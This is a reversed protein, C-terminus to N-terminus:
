RPRVIRDLEALRLRLEMIYPQEDLTWHGYTILVFTGDPLIEIGPYACDSDYTNDMLRVLYQGESGSVLDEYRGIWAVWDGDSPSRKDMHRFSVLLRGDPAFKATHRDGTLTLPMERPPSWTRGEDNSFIICSRHTRSNERLLAALQKGDPSRVIGPECLQVTDASLIKEPTDWHLGGDHSQTMFLTMTKSRVGEKTFFRGDDHFMALYSGNVLREVSGMVVIGGWDGVPALPSWNVGDDESVSMRAPYLGSFLILRKVGSKDVVRHITPVEKSTSWNEPVPLRASWTLGADTSKKMVIQGAGHGMPYVAIITKQDELLVTTVHGLYQGPQRDVVLQRSTDRSLDLWMLQSRNTTQSYSGGVVLHILLLLGPMSPRKMIVEQHHNDLYESACVKEFSSM